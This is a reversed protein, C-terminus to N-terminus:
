QAIQPYCYQQMLTEVEDWKNSEYKAKLSLMGQGSSLKWRMGQLKMRNQMLRINGSEIAGSGVFYGKSKYLPYDMCDKHNDVYKYFNPVGPPFKEDKYPELLKLLEDVNGDDILECLKDAFAKKQVKGRKVAQAFKGANEKAHYLDLIHTAKPLLERVLDRIWLAGDSIVVLESCFDCENRKALAYFHYKFNDAPGIYGIFDRSMIRHGTISGDDAKFYHVSSSNFAIAHKSEMWGDGGKKDRVHVMAGDLELYLVDNKRRRLLRGDIKQRSLTEAEQAERLQSAYVLTGIFDTIKEVQVSSIKVHYKEEINTKADSYSRARVAEKAVACMMQCTMKFPLPDVGLACDLPFISKRNEKELLIHASKKDTPILSARSYQIEGFTGTLKRILNGNNKLVV